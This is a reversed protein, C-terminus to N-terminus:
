QNWAIWDMHLYQGWIGENNDVRYVNVRFQSASIYCTTVAFIDNFDQGRLTVMVNPTSSFASPFTVTYVNVESIGAGLIASGSQVVSFTTGTIGITLGNGGVTLTNTAPSNTNIGVGGHARVLFQNNGTSAFDANTSDAWVFTGDHNAKAQRGAALTYSMTASNYDGGPVTAYNGSAM